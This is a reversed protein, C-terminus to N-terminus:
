VEESLDVTTDSKILNDGASRDYMVSTDYETDFMGYRGSAEPDYIELDAELKGFDTYSIVANDEETDVVELSNEHLRVLYREEEIKQALDEDRNKELLTELVVTDTLQETSMELLVKV